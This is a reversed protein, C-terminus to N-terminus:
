LDEKKRREDDRLQMSKGQDLMDDEDENGEVNLGYTKSLEKRFEKVKNAEEENFEFGKGQFGLNGKKKELEGDVVKQQYEEDLKRLAEPM